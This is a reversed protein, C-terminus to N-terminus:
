CVSKGSTWDGDWRSSRCPHCAARVRCGATDWRATDYSVCALILRSNVFALSAGAGTGRGEIRLLRSVNDKETPALWMCGRGAFPLVFGTGRFEGDRTPMRVCITRPGRSNPRLYFFSEVQEIQGPYRELERPRLELGRLHSLVRRRYYSHVQKLHVSDVNSVVTKTELPEACCAEATGHRSHANRLTCLVNESVLSEQEM